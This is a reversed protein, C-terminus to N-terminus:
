LDSMIMSPPLSQELLHRMKMFYQATHQYFMMYGECLTNLGPQGDLTHEFRHKPCEGRCLGFYRCNLCKEPLSGHKEFGFRSQSRVMDALSQNSVNGLRYDKYVFHDCPYVDGNHEIVPNGGCVDCYVCIGPSVGCWNALTADFLNVFYEGVDNRVWVDFIDCMFQGFGAASVSWPALYAGEERPGAICPRAGDEDPVRIHEVVPMFQMYRSGVSKLFSYVEKGRGESARNVTTMTNFRVGSRHLCMIGAMVKDFSPRGGKDKRFRDHLDAPGDISIGVLFDNEKLFEAWRPTILTGNTQLTNNVKRGDAYREQLALAKRFFDLGAALPEGGHWEFTIEESENYRISESIVKELVEDSMLATEGGYIGSKDLYYCYACDLNCLSGVPKVMVNFAVPGSLRMADLFSLTHGHPIDMYRCNLTYIYQFIFLTRLNAHMYEGEWM